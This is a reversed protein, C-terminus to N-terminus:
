LRRGAIAESVVVVLQRPARTSRQTRGVRRGDDDLTRGDEAEENDNDSDTGYEHDQDVCGIMPSGVTVASVRVVLPVSM